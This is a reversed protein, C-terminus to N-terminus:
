LAAKVAKAVVAMDETPEFRAIVKGSRDVLFKTFNWKVEPQSAYDKDKGKMMRDMAAAAMGKGFGEFGKQAYLYKWLPDAQDGNVDIKMFQSFTTNYKGTCFARIEAMSGPAQEGFQNCPFDLVVLGAEAFQEYLGQLEEYQPTFGCKTATNVVLLVKGRYESLSVDKGDADKVTFDYVSNQALMGLSCVAALLFLFFRKM